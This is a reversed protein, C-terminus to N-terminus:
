ELNNRKKTILGSGRSVCASPASTAPIALFNRAMQSIIQYDYQKSKRYHAVKNENNDREM